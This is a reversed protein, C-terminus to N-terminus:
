ALRDAKLREAFQGLVQALKRVDDEDLEVPDGYRTVPKLMVSSEQELWLYVDGSALTVVEPRSM